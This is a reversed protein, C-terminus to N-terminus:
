RLTRMRGVEAAQQAAIETALEQVAIDSGKALVDRSMTVAGQHHDIMLDLFLRDFRAGRAARLDALQAPSAMGPMSSHDEHDAPGGHGGHGEGHGAGAGDKGHQKLWARMLRIEPEQATAIRDALKTVRNDEARKPALGSMVLAQEHHVIMMTMFEVDAANPRNQRRGAAAAEEPSITRAEEGPKGPALVPPRDARDEGGGTCGTLPVLLAALLATGLVATARPRHRDAVQAERYAQQRQQGTGATPANPPTTRGDTCRSGQSDALNLM